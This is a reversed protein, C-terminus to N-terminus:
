VRRRILGPQLASVTHPCAPGELVGEGSAGPGPALFTLPHSVDLCVTGAARDRLLTLVLVAAPHARQSYFPNLFTCACQSPSRLARPQHLLCASLQVAGQLLTNTTRVQIYICVYICIPTSPTCARTVLTSTSRSHLCCFKVLSTTPRPNYPIARLVPHSLLPVSTSILATIHKEIVRTSTTRYLSVM